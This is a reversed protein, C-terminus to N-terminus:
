ELGLSTLTLRAKRSIAVGHREELFPRVEDALSRFENNMILDMALSREIMGGELLLRRAFPELSPAKAPVLARIFGNYLPMQNTRQAEDMEAIIRSAYEEAHNLILMELAALRVRDSNRRNMFLSEVIETTERTNITGLARIAEDRVQPVEDREARFRLFPIASELGRQSAAQAAGIRTRWFSDRFAELIADEADQGEFPGLASIATARINPDSSSTAEIIAELGREINRGSITAIKSIAEVAGMRIFAREDDNEALGALYEIAELSGTEGLATIIDRRLDDSPERRDIYDLLFLSVEDGQEGGGAARGLARISVSLFRTEGSDILYKLVDVAGGHRVWGL